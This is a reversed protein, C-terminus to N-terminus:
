NGTGQSNTPRSKNLYQKIRVRLINDTTNFQDEVTNKSLQLTYMLELRLGYSVRYGLGARVRMRNAFRERIDQDVVFFYELDTVGYILKDGAYMSDRNLPFVTEARVRSRTSHDWESSEQDIVNRQELRLLLRTQVRANPTFHLRTGITARVESTSLEANQITNSYLVAALVDIHQTLAVEPTIQLDLARWKPSELATAYTAAFEINYQNAFPMNLMYENWMQLSNDQSLGHTPRAFTLVVLVILGPFCSRM